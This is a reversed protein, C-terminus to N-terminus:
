YVPSNSGLGLLIRGSIEASTELLLLGHMNMAKLDRAARQLPSSTALASAGSNMFLRDVADLCFRVALSCDTRIRGRIEIPMEEERRAYEDIDDAIRYLILEAAHILSAAYGLTVQNPIWEHAIHSTYMLKKNPLIRLFEALAARATGLAPGCLALSLVPVAQSKTLAPVEPDSYTAIQRELMADFRLARHAPVPVDEAVLSCSGTGQLGSVFWDDKFEVDSVPVLFDFDGIVDGNADFGKAGLLLWSSREAGSGFPWFGSLLYSGDKQEVAKGRPGIVGAVLADPDKGYVDLQADSSMHGMIWSHAHAVGTVWATASCGEALAAIVDLHTRLSMEYGGTSSRGLVRFLGADKVLRVSEPPLRRLIEAEGARAKLAPVLARARGVIEEASSENAAPSPSVTAM